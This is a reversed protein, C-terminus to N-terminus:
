LSLGYRSNINARIDARYSDQDGAFIGCRAIEINAQFGNSSGARAGGFSIQRIEDTVRVPTATTLAAGNRAAAVNTTNIRGVLLTWDGTVLGGPAAATFDANNRSAARFVASADQGLEFSRQTTSTVAGRRLTVYMRTAGSMTTIRKALMFITAVVQTGNDLVDAGAGVDTNFLMDDVGDFLATAYGNLTGQTPRSGATGQSVSVGSGGKDAVAEIAGANLTVSAAHGPDFDFWPAPMGSPWIDGAPPAAAPARYLATPLLITM